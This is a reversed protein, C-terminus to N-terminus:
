AVGRPDSPFVSRDVGTDASGLAQKVRRSLRGAAPEAGADRRARRALDGDLRGAPLVRHGEGAGGISPPVLTPSLFQPQLAVVNPSGAGPQRPSWPALLANTFVRPTRLNRAISAASTGSRLADRLALGTAYGRLGDLSAIDGRFLLPVASKYLEADTTNTAVESVGQVAGIRGLAGASLVFPESLVRESFLLPAPTLDEGRAAGLRAIARADPGGGGPGDVIVATTRRRDLVRGLADDSLKALAGAESVVLRPAPGPAVPAGEVAGAAGLGARLGALLRRSQPDDGVAARVTRVGPFGAALIRNRVLQGFAAGQAFPDAALRFVNAASTPDVGPDGVVSPIGARSAAEVAAVAGTGCAGALAIPGAALGRAAAARAGEASGGSDLVLAAVKRGGDLGGAANVRAIALELGIIHGRCREAYPGSVDAVALLQM